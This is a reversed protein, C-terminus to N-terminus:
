NRFNKKSHVIYYCKYKKEIEKFCGNLLFNRFYFTHNLVIFIKKKKETM